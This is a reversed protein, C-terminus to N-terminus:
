LYFVDSIYYYGTFIKGTKHAKEQILPLCLKILGISQGTLNKLFITGIQPGRSNAM